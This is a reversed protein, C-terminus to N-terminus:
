SRKFLQIGQAISFIVLGYIPAILSIKLGGALMNQSISGQMQELAKFMEFIGITFGLVGLALAMRGLIQVKEPRKMAAWLLGILVLSLLSMFLPGGALFYNMFIRKLEFYLLNM